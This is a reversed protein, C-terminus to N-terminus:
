CCGDACAQGRWSQIGERAAIGAIALAALPDAWWLGLVANAGLGVLLAVSLYACLSTQRAESVTASSGLAHGVRRKARALLPMTVATFAALAIGVWSADPHHGAALTRLSEIAVYAALLGFSVSIAQQALREAVRSGVRSGTFRWVVVGGALVEILSDIGFGILAISNAAIGAALAFAFEAVHWANGGWALLRARRELRAREAAALRPQSTTITVAAISSRPSETLPEPM